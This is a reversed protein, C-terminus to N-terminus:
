INDQNVNFYEIAQNVNSLIRYKLDGYKFQLIQLKSSLLYKIQGDKHVEELIKQTTITDLAGYTNIMMASNFIDRYEESLYDALLSNISNESIIHDSIRKESMTYATNLKKIISKSKILTLSGDAIASNYIDARPNFHVIYSFIFNLPDIELQGSRSRNFVTDMNIVENNVLYQILNQQNEVGAVRDEILSKVSWLEQHLDSALIEAELELKRDNNWNNVQVAILIGIVVLIIEGIGYLFYKSLRGASSCPPNEVFYKQRFQRFFRLM